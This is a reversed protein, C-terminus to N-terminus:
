PSLLGAQDRWLSVHWPFPLPATPLLCSAPPQRPRLMVPDPKSPSSSATEESIHFTNERWYSLAARHKCRRGQRPPTPPPLATQVHPQWLSAPQTSGQPTGRLTSHLPHAHATHLAHTACRGHLEEATFGTTEPRLKKIQGIPIHDRGATQRGDGQQCLHPSPNGAEKELKRPAQEAEPQLWAPGCWRLEQLDKQTFPHFSPNSLGMALPPPPWACAPCTCGPRRPVGLPRHQGWPGRVGVAGPPQQSLTSSSPSSPDWPLYPPKCLSGWM